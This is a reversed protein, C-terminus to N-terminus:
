KSGFKSSIFPHEMLKDYWDDSILIFQKREEDAEPKNRIEIAHDIINKLYEPYVTNLVNFFYTRDLHVQKDEVDPFYVNFEPDEMLEESLHKVSLEEYKPVTV